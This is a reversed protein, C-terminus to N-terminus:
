SGRSVVSAKAAIWPVDTQDWESLSPWDESAASMAPSAILPGTCREAQAEERQAFARKTKSVSQLFSQGAAHFLIGLLALIAAAFALLAAWAVFFLLERVVYIDLSFVCAFLGVLALNVSMARNLKPKIPVQDELKV